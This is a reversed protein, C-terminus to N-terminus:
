KKIFRFNAEYTECYAPKDYVVKWGAARYSSEVDLWHKDFISQRTFIPDKRKMKEFILSVVRCQVVISSHGDWGEAILENFAEFVEEPISETKKGTVESPTITKTM